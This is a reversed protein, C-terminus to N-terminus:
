EDTVGALKEMSDYTLDFMNFIWNLVVEIDDAIKAGDDGSLFLAYKFFLEEEEKFVQFSGLITALNMKNIEDYIEDIRNVDLDFDFTGFITLCDMYDVEEAGEQNDEFSLEVQVQGTEEEGLEDVMIMLSQGDEDDIYETEYAGEIMTKQINKLVEERFKKKM